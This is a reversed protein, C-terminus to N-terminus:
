LNLKLYESIIKKKCEGWDFNVFMKPQPFIDADVFYTISKLMMFDTHDVYKENYFSIMQKLSYKDLLFYLDIFDKKSGRGEIANLKMAAIDKQSAIRVGDAIIYKDLFPYRHNVFDVKIGNVSCILVSKSGSIKEVKGLKQLEEIIKNEDIEKNGFFDLDVSNRHGIQLALATGGVLIFGSFFDSSMIENLLELLEESVTQTQLM